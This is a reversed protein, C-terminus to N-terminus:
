LVPTVDRNDATLCTDSSCLLYFLCQHLKGYVHKPKLQDCESSLQCFLCSLHAPFSEQASNITWLSSSSSVQHSLRDTGNKKESQTQLFYLIETEGPLESRM